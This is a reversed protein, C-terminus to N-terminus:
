ANPLPFHEQEKDVRAITVQETAVIPSSTINIVPSEAVVRPGYISPAEATESHSIASGNVSLVNGEEVDADDSDRFGFLDEDQCVEADM